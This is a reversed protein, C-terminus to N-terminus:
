HTMMADPAFLDNPKMDHTCFPANGYVHAYVSSVLSRGFSDIHVCNKFFLANIFCFWVWRDGGEIGWYAPSM